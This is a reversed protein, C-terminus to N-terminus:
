KVARLQAHGCDRGQANREVCFCIRVCVTLVDCHLLRAETALTGRVEVVFHAWQLVACHEVLAAELTPNAARTKRELGIVVVTVVRLIHLDIAGTRKLAM